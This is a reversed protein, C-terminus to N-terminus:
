AVILKGFTDLKPRLDKYTTYANLIDRKAQDHYKYQFIVYM